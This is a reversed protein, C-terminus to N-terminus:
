RKKLKCESMYGGGGIYIHLSVLMAYVSKESKMENKARAKAM